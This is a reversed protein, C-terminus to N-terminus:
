IGRKHGGLCFKGNIDISLVDPTHHERYYSYIYKIIVIRIYNSMKSSFPLLFEIFHFNM